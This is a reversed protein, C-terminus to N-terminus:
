VEDEKKVSPHAHNYVAKLHELSVHTYIETTQLNKHGLMEQVSKLNCGNDLLHTAFSHRISHPNVKRVFRARRAMKDLVLAIGAGSLRTNNCNLFLPEGAGHPLPRTQLYARLCLLARSGIPVVREKSGKGFVRLMGSYFDVDGINLGSVESRRLGSSYMLEFIAFDRESFLYTKDEEEEILEPSNADQLQGIEGETLFRPLRKERKPLSILDFPDKSLIRNSLLHNIFSHLASIKRLLSNRSLGRESLFSVFDRVLFRDLGSPFSLKKEEFFVIFENLDTRYAQVTHKSYNRQVELSLLFQELEERM